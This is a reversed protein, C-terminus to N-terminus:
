ETRVGKAPSTTAHRQRCKAQPERNGEGQDPRESQPHKRGARIGAGLASGFRLAVGGQRALSRRVKHRRSISEIVLAALDHNGHPVAHFQMGDDQDGFSRLLRRDEEGARGVAGIHQRGVADARMQPSREVSIVVGGVHDHVAAVDPHHLVNAALVAGLAVIHHVPRQVPRQIRRRDVVRGVGVVGDFPQHLVNGLRVALDSDEANGVVTEQRQHRQHMRVRRQLDRHRHVRHDVPPHAVIPEVIPRKALLIHGVDVLLLRRALRLRLPIRAVEVVVVHEHLRARGPLKAPPATQVLHAEPRLDHRMRAVVGEPAPLRDVFDQSGLRQLHGHQQDRAEPVLLVDVARDGDVLRDLRLVRVVVHDVEREPRPIVPLLDALAARQACDM